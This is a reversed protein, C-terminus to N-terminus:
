IQYSSYRIHISHFMGVAFNMNMLGGIHPNIFESITFPTKVFNAKGSEFDEIFIDMVANKMDTISDIEFFSFNIFDFNNEM